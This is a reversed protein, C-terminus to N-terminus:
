VHLHSLFVQMVETQKTKTEVYLNYLDKVGQRITGPSPPLSQFTVRKAQFCSTYSLL